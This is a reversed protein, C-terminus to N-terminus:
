KQERIVLEMGDRVPRQAFWRFGDLNYDSEKRDILREPYYNGEVGGIVKIRDTVGDDFEIIIRNGSSINMGNPATDDYLYYLSTATEDVEIRHVKGDSFTMTIYRGSLQDFRAARLSDARSVAMGHGRVLVSNLRKDRVAIFISDGTLQNGEHWVVPEGTLTIMDEDVRFIAGDCLASLNSRAMRVNGQAVMIRLSDDISEMRDSRVLFTDIVGDASSDIQMLRPNQEVISRRELNYNVLSDGFVTTGDSFQEVSVNGTAISRDDAEFYVLRECRLRSVSDVVEVQGTFVARKEDPFYEGFDSTLVSGSRVLRVDGAVDIRRSAGFYQGENATIVVSDRVVRVQGDLEFREATLYQLARDSWVKVVGGEKLYQLFHVNGLLERVEVGNLTKGNLEDASRLEVVGPRPRTQGQAAWSLSVLAIVLAFSASSSPRKV